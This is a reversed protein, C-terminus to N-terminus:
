CHFVVQLMGVLAKVPGHCGKSPLVRRVRRVGKIKEREERIYIIRSVGGMNACRGHLFICPYVNYAFLNRSRRVFELGMQLLVVSYSSDPHFIM